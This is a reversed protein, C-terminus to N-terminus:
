INGAVRAAAPQAEIGLRVAKGWSSQLRRAISAACCQSKATVCLLNYFLKMVHYVLVKGKERKEEERGGYGGGWRGVVVSTKRIQSAKNGCVDITVAKYV